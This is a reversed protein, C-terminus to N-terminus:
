ATGEGAGGRSCTRPETWIAKASDTGTWPLTVREKEGRAWFLKGKTLCLDASLACPQSSAAPSSSHPLLSSSCLVWGRRPQMM